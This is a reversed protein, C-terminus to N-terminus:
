NETGSGNHQVASLLPVCLSLLAVSINKHPSVMDPCLIWSFIVSSTWETPENGTYQSEEEFRFDLLNGPIIEM